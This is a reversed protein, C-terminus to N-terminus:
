QILGQRKFSIYAGKGVVIHDALPIGLQEGARQLRKTLACDEPSPSPDGSPHNHAVIVSSAMLKVAHYFIERPTLMCSDVTGQAIMEKALVGNRADLYIARVQEQPVHQMERLLEFADEPGNIRTGQHHEPKLMRAAIEAVAKIKQAHESSVGAAAALEAPTTRFLTADLTRFTELVSAAIPESVILGLLEKDSATNLSYTTM